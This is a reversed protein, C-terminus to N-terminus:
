RELMSAAYGVGGERREMTNPVWSAQYASLSPLQIPLLPSVLVDNINLHYLGNGLSLPNRGGPSDGLQILLPSSWLQASKCIDDLAVRMYSSDPNCSLWKELSMYGKWWIHALHWHIHILSRNLPSWLYILALLCINYYFIIFIVATFEYNQLLSYLLHGLPTPPPPIIDCERM